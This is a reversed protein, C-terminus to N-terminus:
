ISRLGLSWFSCRWKRVSHGACADTMHLVYHLFVFFSTVRWCRMLSCDRSEKHGSPLTNICVLKLLVAAACCLVSLKHTNIVRM